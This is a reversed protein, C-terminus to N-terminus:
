SQGQYKTVLYSVRGPNVSYFVSVDLDKLSLNDKAKPKLDNFDLATEKTNYEAVSAIVATYFGPQIEVPSVKGLYTEVGVHGTEIFGCASALLTMAAAAAVLLRKM